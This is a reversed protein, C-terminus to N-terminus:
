KIQENFHNFSQNIPEFRQEDVPFDGYWIYDFQHTLNGFESKIEPESIETLYNYNTKEPQWQIIEADSLKKLTRLYLLRVALRFKGKEILKQIETEYDIEHINENLIDYPLITEKSKKSFINESGIVRVVIYLLIAVGIVIFFYKSLPNSAAGRFLDNVMRWFLMWFRDWLSLDGTASDDYQFEKQEAYTNLADRNFKAPNIRSSDLKVTAQQNPKLNQGYSNVVAFLLCFVILFKFALKPM